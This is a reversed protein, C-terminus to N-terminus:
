KGEKRLNAFSFWSSLALTKTITTATATINFFYIRSKEVPLL